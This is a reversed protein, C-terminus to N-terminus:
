GQLVQSGPSSDTDLSYFKIFTHPFFWRAVDCVDQLPVDRALAKSPAVSRAPHAKVGLPLAMGQVEYPDQTLSGSHSTSSPSRMGKIAAVLASWSSLPSLGSDKAANGLLMTPRLVHLVMAM